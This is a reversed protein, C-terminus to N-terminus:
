KLNKRYYSKCSRDQLHNRRPRVTEPSIVIGTNFNRQLIKVSLIKCILIVFIFYQRSILLQFRQMTGDCM